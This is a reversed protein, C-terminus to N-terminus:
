CVYAKYLHGPFNLSDNIYVNAIDTQLSLNDYTGTARLTIDDFRWTATISSRFM